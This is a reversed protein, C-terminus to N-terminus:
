SVKDDFQYRDMEGGAGRGQRNERWLRLALPFDGDGLAVLALVVLSAPSRHLACASHAHARARSLCGRELAALARQRHRVAAGEVALVRRLDTQCRHCFLGGRHRARCTPCQEM